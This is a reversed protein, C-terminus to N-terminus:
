TAKSQSRVIGVSRGGITPSTPALKQPYLTGRPWGSLNRHGYQRSELGSGSSKKELLEEYNILCPTMFAYPPISTYSLRNKAQVSTRLSNDAERGPRKVKRVRYPSLSWCLATIKIGGHYAECKLCAEAATPWTICHQPRRKAPVHTYAQLVCQGTQGPRNGNVLIIYISNVCVIPFLLDLLPPPYNWMNICEFRLSISAILGLNPVTVVMIINVGCQVRHGLLFTTVQMARHEVRFM